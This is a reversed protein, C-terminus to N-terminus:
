FRVTGSFVFERPRGIHAVNFPAGIDYTPDYITNYRANTLNSVHGALTWFGREVRVGMNLLQYASQRASDQPDWWSSGTFSADLRAGFTLEHGMRHTWDVVVNASYDPTFPAIRGRLNIPLNTQPDIFPVNGWVARTWGLGSSVKFGAPLLGTIELEAGYNRSAGINSTVELIGAPVFQINQYLRNAYDIYFVAGNLQVVDHLTSKLGAEYSTAIEARYSHVEGNEEIEDAPEFGRSVTTYLNLDDNFRYQLSARPSLQRGNLRAAANLVPTLSNNYAAEASDYYEGRLGLELQWRSLRYTADAFVAYQTQSKEDRDLDTGVVIPNLVDGTSFNDIQTVETRHHQYYLGLLWNLNSTGTSQLRLEQSAVRHDQNQQLADIPRPQKALDTLGRNYSSFYSSISTFSVASGLQQDIRLTPSWLRREFSPLYYDNVSYLYTHDDPPTYLLNQAGTRFADANIYLHAKTADSPEYLLTLRGGHDTTAGVDTQHYTDYTYGDQNEDYFSARMALKDPILPGSVVAFYNRTALNGNEVSAENSWSFSPEKTVYKIAGGINAGGYLTGQPGKLVEIREIDFPRLTQGEFQQIDDVYFGVGQVVGFSGVGRLTVDPSNDNRQVIHLNSVLSGIDDIQTMHAEEITAASIAVISAPVDQINEARKRATVVVEQLSNSEPTDIPAEATTTSQAWASICALQCALASVCVAARPWRRNFTLVNASYM